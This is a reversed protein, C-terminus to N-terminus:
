FSSGDFCHTCVKCKPLGIAAVLAELTNFRLSDLGLEDCIAAVMRAYRESKPDAYEDLHKEGEEGELKAIVRRTILEMPTKSATFNIFECPYILPPCSIRM